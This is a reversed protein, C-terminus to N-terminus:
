QLLQLVKEPQQNAQSLMSTAAQTLVNMTTYQTMEDAMDVDIIRSLAATLNEETADLASITSELRNEYAGIRSRTTNIFSLANDCMTIARQCGASTLANIRDIGLTVCTIEPLEIEMEQAENAGLQITMTGTDLVYCQVSLGVGTMSDDLQLKMEFGGEAKITVDNGDSVVIASSSIGSGGVSFEDPLVEADKGATYTGGNIGLQNALEENEVSIEIPYSTGTYNSTIKFSNDAQKEVTADIKDGAEIMKEYVDDITDGEHIRILAGNIKISGSETFTSAVTGTIFESKTGPTVDLNYVGAKVTDSLYTITIDNRNSYTIRSLDGNLLSKGNFETDNAIRDIETQLQDIENMISVRDEDTYSDTAGQVSLERIRQVMSTIETLAGEATQVVSIGDAANQNARDLGRIQTKMKKSIASGVPNDGANNIKYGSSLRELSKSVSNENKRLEYAATLATLNTTIRM